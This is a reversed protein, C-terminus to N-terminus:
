VTQTKIRDSYERRLKEEESHITSNRYYKHTRVKKLLVCTSDSDGVSPLVMWWSVTQPTVVRMISKLGQLEIVFQRTMHRFYQLPKKMTKTQNTNTLEKERQRPFIRM